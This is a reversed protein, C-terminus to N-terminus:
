VLGLEKLEDTEANEAKALEAAKAKAVVVIEKAEAATLKLKTHNNPLFSVTLEKDYFVHAVRRGSLLVDAVGPTGGPSALHKVEIQEAVSAASEKAM